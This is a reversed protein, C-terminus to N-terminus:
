FTIQNSVKFQISNSKLIVTGFKKTEKENGKHDNKMRENPVWTWETIKLIYKRYASFRHFQNRPGDQCGLRKITYNLGNDM